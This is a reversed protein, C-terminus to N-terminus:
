LSSKTGLVYHGSNENNMETIVMIIVWGLLEKKPCNSLM